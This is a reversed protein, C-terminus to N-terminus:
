SSAGAAGEIANVAADWRHLGAGISAAMVVEFAAKDSGGADRVAEVQRDTVRYSAEGIQRALVEYPEPVAADGGGGLSLASERFERGVVGTELVRRRLRVALDRHSSYDM